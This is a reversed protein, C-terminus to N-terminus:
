HDVTCFRRSCDVKFRAYVSERLKELLSNNPKQPLVKAFKSILNQVFVTLLLNNLFHKFLLFVHARNQKPRPLICKLSLFSCFVVFRNPVKMKRINLCRSFPVFCINLFTLSLMSNCQFYPLLSM